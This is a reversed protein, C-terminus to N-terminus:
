VGRGTKILEKATAIAKDTAGLGLRIKKIATELETKIRMLRYKADRNDDGRADNIKEEVIELEAELEAIIKRRESVMTNKRMARSIVLFIAAKVPAISFIGVTGLVKKLVGIVTYKKGEIIEDRVDGGMFVKKASSVFKTLQSDIKEEENKYTKYGRYIARTAKSVGTSAKDYKEMAPSGYDVLAIFGEETIEYDVDEANEIRDKSLKERAIYMPTHGAYVSVDRLDCILYGLASLVNENVKHTASLGNLMKLMLSTAIEPTKSYNMIFLLEHIISNTDDKFVKSYRAEIMGIMDIIRKTHNLHYYYALCFEYKLDEDRYISHLTKLIFLVKDKISSVFLTSYAPHQHVHFFIDKMLEVEEKASNTDYIRTEWTYLKQNVLIEEVLDMEDRSIEMESVEVVVHLLEKITNEHKWYSDLPRNLIDFNLLIAYPHIFPYRKSVEENSLELLNLHSAYALSINFVTRDYVIDGSLIATVLNESYDLKVTNLKDVIMKEYKVLLHRYNALISILDLHTALRDIKAALEDSM